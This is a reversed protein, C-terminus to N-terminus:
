ASSSLRDVEGRAAEVYREDQVSGLNIEVNLRAGRLGATLLEQAVAVDSSANPNGLRAVLGAQELAARCARMVELPAEIADRLADQIAATRAQKEEESRKPLRYSSMVMVYAESDRDVLTAM